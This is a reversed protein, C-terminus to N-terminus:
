YMFYRLMNTVINCKNSILPHIITICIRLTTASVNLLLQIRKGRQGIDLLLM